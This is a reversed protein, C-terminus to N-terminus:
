KDPPVFDDAPRWSCSFAPPSPGDGFSVSADVTAGLGYKGQSIAVKPEAVNYLKLEIPQPGEWSFRPPAMSVKIMTPSQRGSAFFAPLNIVTLKCGAQENWVDVSMAPNSSYACRYGDPATETGDKQRIRLGIQASTNLLLDTNDAVLVFTVPTYFLGVIGL